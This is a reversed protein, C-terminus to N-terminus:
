VGGRLKRNMIDNLFQDMFPVTSRAVERGDLVTVLEIKEPGAYVIRETEKGQIEKQTVQPTQVNATIRGMQKQVALQMRSQLEPINLRAKAFKQAMTESVDEMQRYLNRAEKEHGKEIGLVDYKGIEAFKRSPSKIGLQKKATKILTNCLDKMAKSASRTESTIGATLGKAINVGAQQIQRQLDDTAKKLEAQYRKELSALDDSFFNNSFTESMSQQKNWNEIYAKQQEDSMAQFWDMYASAEDVNMGLIKEIMSEPVKNELEKLHKQYREIDSINQELDYVNGWSQQKSTLSDRLGAIHDYEKQYKESLEQIQKQAIQTLRDAEKEFATNFANAVKEGATQMQEAEAKNAAKLQTLQKKLKKKKKKSKTKDIKTQKANEAKAQAATLSEYQADITEQLSNSGRTKALNLSESLGSMLESGVQSYKGEGAMDKAVALVESMATGMEAVLESKAINVGAAIGRPINVGVANQFTKSPSHIDLEDTAAEVSALAMGRSATEVVGTNREIGAAMGLPLFKGVEDRFVRSPSNIDAESKAADKASKVARRAAAQIAPIKSILGSEIGAGMFSGVPTFSESKAGKEAATSLGKGSKTVTGKKADLGESYEKGSKDAAEGLGQASERAVLDNMQKVAEAPKTKGSNVASVLKQVAETGGKGSETVLKDFSVLDEMQKIASLPESKGSAIGKSLNSPIKVGSQLSMSQLEDLKILAKMQDVSAPLVYKGNQIGQAVAAPVQVGDAQAKQVMGDLNILSNLEEGTMPNAYVGEKMGQVVSEPIDAAKIKAEECIKDIGGLFEAYNTEGIQRNGMTDLEVNLETLSKQYKKVQEDASNYAENLQRQNELAVQLEVNDKPAISKDSQAKKVAEEAEKLKEAAKTQKETAKALKDETKIIDETIGEMQAGYAKAMALEKQAAINKKIADTSKNLKDKEEDYALGLDPLLGNLKEVITKIQEKQGASKNEVSMLDELKASLFDAQKGETRTAEISEERAKKNEKLSELYKKQAESSRKLKKSLTEESLAYVGVGAAMAGIAIVAVGIPGGLATIGAELIGSAATAKGMGGSLAGVAVTMGSVANETRTMAGAVDAATKFGSAADRAAGIASAVTKVAKYGKFVTLLGTAAPLAIDFNNGLIKVAAGLVKIGGGGVSKAISGLSKVTTIAEKPIISKVGNKKIASALGRVQVAGEKVVKKLPGKIDEYVEIGVSEAASGLEQLAGKLNDNMTDAQKKAAGDANNISKTLKNFDSDSAGVIALLGSMAEQGAISTAYQAKQSDDLDAFKTRLEGLVERLPKMSGDSNEASIKLEDLAEAAEKPPKVLRTLISRLATGAEGGKIGANAMLGIATATDEISYKMSGAIPAVYKFTEGMMGVNTNSSSSAKALVDAFHASDEAQLGFATMADTVIDSVTGLSEGSAAALNMVGPLGSIMQKADWGAMSMYKLAEASETASFKTTAGMEKAKETLKQFEEGSAGSIAKVESMGVEFSSGVKVAAAAGTALGTVTAKAAISVVNRIKNAAGTWYKEANAASQKAQEETKKYHQKTEESSKKTSKSAKEASKEMEKASEEASEKVDKKLSNLGKEIETTDLDTEIVISGDAM